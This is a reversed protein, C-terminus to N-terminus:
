GRSRNKREEDFIFKIIEERVKSDKMIFHVRNEYKSETGEIRTCRIISGIIYYQKDVREGSLRVAILIFGGNENEEKSTFRVGGGSIDVIVGKKEKKYFNEDRIKEFAIEASELEAEEQTLNFYSMDIMCQHRFYERRQFKVLRSKLEVVLVFLNDKKFREKVQGEGRYLGGKSYFVFEFRIGLPLLVIRGNETPMAIQLLGNENMDYVQSKYLRTPKDSAEEQEVQQILRIDIKDGPRIIDEIMM